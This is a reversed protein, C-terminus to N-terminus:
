VSGGRASEKQQRWNEIMAMAKDDLKRDFYAQIFPRSVGGIAFWVFAFGVLVHIISGLNGAPELWAGLTPSLALVWVSVAALCAAIGAVIIRWPALRRLRHNLKTKM